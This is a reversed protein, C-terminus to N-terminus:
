RDKCEDKVIGIEALAQGILDRLVDIQHQLNGVVEELCQTRDRLSQQMPQVVQAGTGIPGEPLHQKM